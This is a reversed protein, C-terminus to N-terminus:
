AKHKAKTNLDKILKSSKCIIYHGVESKAFSYRTKGVSNPSFITRERMSHDEFVQDCMIQGYIYCSIELTEM